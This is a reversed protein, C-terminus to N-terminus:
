RFFRRLEAAVADPRGGRRRNWPGDHGLGRLEIRRADPLTRELDRVGRRLYPPSATGGLLLVPTRIAAFSPMRTDRGSVARFDYRIGPLLDRLRARHGPLIRDGALVGAALLRALPRPLARLPAPATGSLRLASVLASPLDGREIEAGLRRVGTAPLGGRRFPPEYVATRAVRPLTRAAELAIMAGSSLGFVRDAGTAALVADVDEVDRAIDHTGDYPRPSMGRGRRDPVLVTFQAALAEALEDYNRADGGAGQVLVVGPGSGRRLLGISTGDASTVDERRATPAPSGTPRSM